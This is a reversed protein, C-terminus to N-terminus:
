EKEDEDFNIKYHKTFLEKCSDLAPFNYNKGGLHIAGSGKSTVGIRGLIKGLSRELSGFVDKKKITAWEHAYLQVCKMTPERVWSVGKHTNVGTILMYYVFATMPPLDHIKRDMLADTDPAKYLNFDSIDYDLFYKLLKSCFAKHLPSSKRCFSISKFYPINQKKEESVELYFYRRDDTEINV